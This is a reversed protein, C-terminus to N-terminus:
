YHNYYHSRFYISFQRCPDTSSPLPLFVSLPSSFPCERCKYMHLHCLSVWWVSFFPHLVLPSHLYLQPPSIKWPVGCAHISNDCSIEHSIYALEFIFNKFLWLLKCWRFMILRQQAEERCNGILSVTNISSISARCSGLSTRGRKM